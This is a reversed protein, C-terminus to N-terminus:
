SQSYECSSLQTVLATCTRHLSVYTFYPNTLKPNDLNSIGATLISENAFAQAPSQREQPSTHQLSTSVKWQPEGGMHSADRRCASTSMPPCQSRLPHIPWFYLKCPSRTRDRSVNCIFHSRGKDLWLAKRRESKVGLQAGSCRDKQLSYKTIRVWGHLSPDLLANQDPCFAPPDWLSSWHFCIYIAAERKHTM